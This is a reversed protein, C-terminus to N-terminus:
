FAGVFSQTEDRVQLGDVHRGFRHFTNPPGVRLSKLRDEVDQSAESDNPKERAQQGSLQRNLRFFLPSLRKLILDFTM